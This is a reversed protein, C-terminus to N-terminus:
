SDRVPIYAIATRRAAGLRQYFAPANQSQHAPTEMEANFIDCRNRGGDQPVADNQIEIRVGVALRRFSDQLVDHRVRASASAAPCGPSRVLVLM